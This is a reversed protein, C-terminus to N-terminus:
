LPLAFLVAPNGPWLDPFEKAEIFGLTRYFARTRAYGDPVDGEDYSSSLTMVLLLRRGEARLAVCLREVLARGIGQGRAAHEVALWTIEAARDHERAVTLFGVVRDDRAAVLGDGERVARACEARGAANGFHYPLSLIIADCAAADAPALPRITLEGANM